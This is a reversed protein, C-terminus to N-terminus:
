ILYYVIHLWQLLLNLYSLLAKCDKFYWNIVIIWLEFKLMHMVGLSIFFPFVKIFYYLPNLWKVSYHINLSQKIIIVHSWLKLEMINQNKHSDMKYLYIKCNKDIFSAVTFGSSFKSTSRSKDLSTLSSRLWVSKVGQFHVIWKPPHLLYDWNNILFKAMSTVIHNHMAFRLHTRIDIMAERIKEDVTSM